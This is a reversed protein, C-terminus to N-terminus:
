KMKQVALKILQNYVERWGDWNKYNGLSENHWDAIFLGNVAKIKAIIEDIKNVAMEPTLDMHKLAVDIVQFPYILMDYTKDDSIDYFYFPTCTGARFGIHSSYGMSYDNEIGSQALLRYTDPMTIKLFHQRSNRIRRGTIKELIAKENRIFGKQSARYSPHLSVQGLSSLEIVLKRFYKNKYSINKDYKGFSGCLIFIIPSLSSSRHINKIYSYTDYPDKKKSFYVKFRFSIEKGDFKLIARAFAGLTRLIGKHLFAYSNDIDITPQFSFERLPISFDPYHSQLVQALAFIWEDVVPRELFGLQFAVSSEAKFRNHMDREACVYEEYRSIMFFVASFLDFPIEDVDNGAYIIPLNQWLGPSIKFDALDKENLLGQPQIQVVGPINDASYNIRVDDSVDFTNRDDTEEWHVDLVRDFIFAFVYSSRPGPAPNYILIKSM